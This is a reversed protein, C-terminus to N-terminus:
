LTPVASMESWGSGAGTALTDALVVFQIFRPFGSVLTIYYLISYSVLVDPDTKVAM